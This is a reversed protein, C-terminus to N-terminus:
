EEKTQNIHIQEETISYTNSIYHKLNQIEQESIELEDIKETNNSISVNINIEEIKNINNITSDQKQIQMYIQNIEYYNEEKLEIQFAKLVYGKEKIRNRCDEEIKQKYTEQIYANTEITLDDSNKYEEIEESMNSILLDINSEKNSLKTVIPQIITFLIYIGIITKVYKKNNGNPLIIEIITGIIVALIIGEAWSNVFEIM